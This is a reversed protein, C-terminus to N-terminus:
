EYLEFKSFTCAVFTTRVSEDLDFGGGESNTFSSSVFTCDTLNRAYVGAGTSYHFTCNTVLLGYSHLM